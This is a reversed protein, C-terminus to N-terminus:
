RRNGASGAGGSADAGMIEGLKAALERFGFPKQIFGNCGRQMIEEAQGELAYGSSLLVRAGPDIQRLRDFTEAGSMEPMIM